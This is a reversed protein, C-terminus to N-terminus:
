LEDFGRVRLWQAGFEIALSRIGPDQMMRRAQAALVAPDHLKGVSALRRLEADPSSSWFFYSLRTALEWDGVHVAVRGPPAQEIRFLFSPSVFVRALVGRFADEHSAGKAILTRYLAAQETKEAASLPRRYAKSTFELLAALQVPIAGTEDREFDDA